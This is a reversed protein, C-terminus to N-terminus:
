DLQAIDKDPVLRTKQTPQGSGVVPYGLQAFNIVKL